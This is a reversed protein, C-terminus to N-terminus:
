KHKMRNATTDKFCFNLFDLEEKTPEKMKRFSQASSGISKGSDYLSKDAYEGYERYLYPIKRGAALMRHVFM